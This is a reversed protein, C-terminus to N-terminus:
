AAQPLRWAALGMAAFALLSVVSGVAISHSRFEFDVLHSGASVAVARMTHNARLVPTPKGDVTAVWGPYWTDSLVLLGSAAAEVRVVVRNTGYQLLTATSAEHMDSLPASSRDFLIVENSPDFGGGALTSLAEAADAVVRARGVLFARPLVDPNRYLHVDSFQGLSEFRRPTAMPWPSLVYKVNYLNM